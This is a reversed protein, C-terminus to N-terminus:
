GVKWGLLFGIIGSVWAVPHAKAWEIFLTPAAKVSEGGIGSWYKITVLDLHIVKAYYLATIVLAAALVAYVLYKGFSKLLFGIIFFILGFSILDIAWGPLYDRLQQHISEFWSKATAEPVPITEPMPPIPLAADPAVSVPPMVQEANM